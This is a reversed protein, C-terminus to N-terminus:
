QIFSCLVFRVLLSCRVCRVAAYGVIYRIKYLLSTVVGGRQYHLSLVPTAPTYIGQVINTKWLSPTPPNTPQIQFSDLCCVALPTPLNLLSFYSCLLNAAELEFSFFFSFFPLIRMEVDNHGHIM